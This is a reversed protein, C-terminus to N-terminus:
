KEGRGFEAAIIAAMGEIAQNASLKRRNSFEYDYAARAARRTRETVNPPTVSAASGRVAIEVIRYRPDGQLHGAVHAEAAARSVFVGENWAGFEEDTDSFVLAFITPTTAPQTVHTSSAIRMAVKIDDVRSVLPHKIWSGIPRCSRPHVDIHPLCVIVPKNMGLAIGTEILAGKLPFDEMEAYLVLVASFAIENTIRLWLDEYSETAGEGDEDIWSSIIQHGSVRLNRWMQGREPLSARSAVYILVGAVDVPQPPNNNTTM